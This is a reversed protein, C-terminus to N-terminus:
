ERYPSRPGPNARSSPAPFSSPSGGAAAGPTPGRRTAPGSPDHSSGTAPLLSGTRDWRVVGPTVRPGARGDTGNFNLPNFCLQINHSPQGHRDHPDHPRDHPDNRGNRNAGGEASGADPEEGPLSERNAGGEASGADPEEGPLSERFRGKEPF